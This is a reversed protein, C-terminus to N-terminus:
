TKVLGDWGPYLDDLHIVPADLPRALRGAFWTKGSGSRGDVAILRTRGLRPETQALRAALEAVTMVTLPLAGPHQGRRHQGRVHDGGSSREPGDARAQRQGASG